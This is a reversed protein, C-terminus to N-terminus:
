KILMMRKTSTFNGAEIRYIYMGSSLASADFAVTHTGSNLTKGNILTSVEQGLVNYVTLRVDAANPLTFSINTSPNFPNPYNQHLSFTEPKVPEFDSSTALGAYDPQVDFELDTEAWTVTKMTFTEPWQSQLVEGLFPDNGLNAVSLPDVFQYFRRGAAFGGGNVVMSEYDGFPEGYRVVYGFDNLTGATLDLDLTLEYVNPEGDVPTYRLFELDASTGNATIDDFYGGGSRFGNTLATFKSELQMYLSDTGPRFPVDATLAATMDIKFTVSIMGNPTNGAQIIAGTNVDNFYQVGPSQNAEDTFDFFRDAGGTTVPEEYGFDGSEAVAEIYNDSNEDSRSADYEIYYKYKQPAGVAKTYEQTLRWLVDQDDFTATNSENTGWDLPSEGRVVVKDGVGSDFYGLVELVATSVEFTVNATVIQANTPARGQFNVWHITSDASPVDLFRNGDQNGDKNDWFVGKETELVFKYGLTGLTDAAENDILVTGSYFLNDDEIPTGDAAVREEKSLYIGSSGWDNFVAGGGRITVSDTAPNFSEDQVFAGVNVRFFLSVSDDNSEFPASMSESWLTVMTDATVTFSRTPRDPGTIEWGGDGNNTGTNMDYGSWIKYTLADGDLMYADLSWYDGGQNEAVFTSASNWDIVQGGFYAGTSGNIAGRVQLFHDEMLTDPHTATNVTFNVKYANRIDGEVFPFIQPSFFAGLNGTLQFKETPAPAGDYFSEDRDIRMTFTSDGAVVDVNVGSSTQANEPWTEGDALMAATSLTVRMGQYKSDLSIDAETITVPDPLANGSSLITYKTSDSEVQLLGNTDILTGTVRVIDGAAFPSNGDSNTGVADDGDIYVSIGATGDQMFFQNNFFNFDPTTLVGEVTVESGIDLARADALQIVGEDSFIINDIFAIVGASPLGSFIIQAINTQNTMGEFSSLAISYTTWESQAPSEIVIEHETDDGEGDGGEGSFGGTPGFDVLKIRFTTANPTWLDFNVHTMGSVDIQNAVTEIGVFDLSTYRKVANGAITTDKFTANSWDTRWTDVTVDTYSDSFLSIVDAADQSPADPADTPDQALASVAFLMSFVSISMLLKTAKNM